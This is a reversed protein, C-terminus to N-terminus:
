RITVIDRQFNSDSSRPLEEQKRHTERNKKQGYCLHLFRFFFLCLWVFNLKPWVNGSEYSTRLLFLFFSMCIIGKHTPRVLCLKWLPTQMSFPGRWYGLVPTVEVIRVYLLMWNFEIYSSDLFIQCLYDALEISSINQHDSKKFVDNYKIRHFLNFIITKKKKKLEDLHSDFHSYIECFHRNFVWDRKNRGSLVTPIKFFVDFGIINRTWNYCPLEFERLPSKKKENEIESADCNIRRM